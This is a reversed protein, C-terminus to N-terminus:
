GRNFPVAANAQKRLKVILSEGLMRSRAWSDRLQVRQRIRPLPIRGVNYTVAEVRLGVRGAIRELQHLSVPSIHGNTRYSEDSFEFHHNRVMLELKSSISLVNPTTVILWGGDPLVDAISRIFRLPNELHEVVEIAVAGGVPGAFEPLAEDLNAELFPASSHGARRYDEEDIDVAVVAYGANHLYATFNGPGAGLDLVTLENPPDLLSAVVEHTCASASHTPDILRPGGDVSM